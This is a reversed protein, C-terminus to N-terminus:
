VARVRLLSTDHCVCGFVRARGFVGFGRFVFRGFRGCRLDIQGFRQQGLILFNGIQLIAHQASHCVHFIGAAPQLAVLRFSRLISDGAKGAVHQGHGFIQAAGNRRQRGIAEVIHAGADLRGLALQQRDKAALAYGLDLDRRAFRKIGIAM